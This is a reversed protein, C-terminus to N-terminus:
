SQHSRATSANSVLLQRETYHSLWALQEESLQGCAWGWHTAVFDGEEVAGGLSRGDQSWRYRETRLAGLGLWRGDFDISRHRVDIWEDETAVVEGWGVRCRELIELSPSTRGSRLLGLWPYIAFVHFSHHPVPAPAVEFCGWDAGSQSAFRSRAEIAFRSREVSDLLPSGIWYAEVVRADLPDLDESAAAIIELYPWAGDFGEASKRIVADGSGSAVELLEAGDGVGCYGLENPPYAYRAFLEAGSLRAVESL